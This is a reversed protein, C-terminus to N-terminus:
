VQDNPNPFQKGGALLGTLRPSAERIPCHILIWRGLFPDGTHDRAWSSGVHQLVVLGLASWFGPTGVGSAARQLYQFRNLVLSAVCHSVQAGWPRTAGCEGCQVFDLCLFTRGACGSVFNSVESSCLQPCVICPTFECAVRFMGGFM